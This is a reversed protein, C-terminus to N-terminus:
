SRTLMPLRSTTARWSSGCSTSRRWRRSTRSGRSSWRTATTVSGPRAGGRRSRTSSSVPRPRAWTSSRSTPEAASSMAVSGSSRRIHEDDTLEVPEGMWGEEIVRSLDPLYGASRQAEAAVPEVWRGQEGLFSRLLDTRGVATFNCLVTNDPFLFSAM